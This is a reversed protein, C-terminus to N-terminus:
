KRSRNLRTNRYNNYKEGFEEGLAQRTLGVHTYFVGSANRKPDSKFSSQQGKARIDEIAQRDALLISNSHKKILGRLSYVDKIGFFNLDMLLDSYSEDESLNRSPLNESLVKQVIDSNLLEGDGVRGLQGVYTERETLVREFELDVLELLAAVRNISRRVLNPVNSEIKYQLLHSTVAWIHQSATRVQVELHLGKLDKLTPLLFWGDKPEVEFHISGYGFQDVALRSQTDEVKLIKFNNNIIECAKKQDRKFLLIIRLGAIDSIENITKPSINYRECKEAISSWSKVRSEIPVTLVINEQRLLEYIQNKNEQLFKEYLLQKQEYEIKLIDPVNFM